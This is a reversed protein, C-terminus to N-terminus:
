TVNTGREELESPAFARLTWNIRNRPKPDKTKRYPPVEHKHTRQCSGGMVVMDGDELIFEIKDRCQDVPTSQKARFRFCRPGGWSLSFIPSERRLSQEDDSHLAISHRPEYWNQLCGNYPGRNPLLLNCQEILKEIFPNDSLPRAQNISGSYKYSIGWSQSFRTEHCIKGYMMLPHYDAPHLAWQQAFEDPSSPMWHKVVLVWSQSDKTLYTVQAKPTGICGMRPQSVRFAHALAEAEQNLPWDPCGVFTCLPDPNAQGSSKQAPAQNNGPSDAVM